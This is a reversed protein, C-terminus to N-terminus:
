TLDVWLYRWTRSAGNVAAGAYLKVTVTNASVVVAGAPVLDDELADPPELVVIDGVAAGTITVDTDVKEHGSSANAPDVTVTGTYVAFAVPGGAQIKRRLKEIGM